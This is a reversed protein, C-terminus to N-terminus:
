TPTDFSGTCGDKPLGHWDGSCRHCKPNSVAARSSPAKRNMLGTMQWKVIDDIDQEAMQERLRRFEEITMM